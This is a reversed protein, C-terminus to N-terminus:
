VESRGKGMESKTRCRRRKKGLPPDCKVNEYYARRSWTGICTYVLRCPRIM